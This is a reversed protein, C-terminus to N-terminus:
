RLDRAVVAAVIAGIVGGLPLAFVARVLNDADWVGSWALAVTIVTPLAAGVLTRKLVNARLLPSASPQAAAGAGALLLWGLVGLGAGVYLGLCRACVPLQAGDRHFSREPQQHCVLSGALYVM